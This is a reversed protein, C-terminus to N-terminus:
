DRMEAVYLRGDDDWAMAVPSVVAPESAVLAIALSPDALRISAREEEPTPPGEARAAHALLISAAVLLRAIPPM